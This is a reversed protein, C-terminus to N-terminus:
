VFTCADQGIITLKASGGRVGNFYAQGMAGVEAHADAKTNNPKGRAVRIEDFIPLKDNTSLSPSRATQNVDYFTRGDHEFLAEVKLNAENIGSTRRMEAVNEANIGAIDESVAAGKSNQLLRSSATVNELNTAIETTSETVVAPSTKGITARGLLLAGLLGGEQDGFRENVDDLTIRGEGYDLLTGTVNEIVPGVITAGWVLDKIAKSSDGALVDKQLGNALHSSFKMDKLDTGLAMYAEHTLADAGIKVLEAGFNYVGKGTSYSAQTMGLSYHLAANAWWSDTEWSDLKKRADRFSQQVDDPEHGNHDTFRMPNNHAYSYLNMSQAMMAMGTFSDQQIFRGLGPAYYREGNGLPMLGTETDFRQGTYGISNYSGGGVSLYNGWADYEYSATLGSNTTTNQQALGTISGQGDSFYHRSGEGGL